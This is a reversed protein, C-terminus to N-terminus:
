SPDATCRLWGSPAVTIGLREELATDVVFRDSTALFERVATKPNAARSWPRDPYLEDPLDDIVTDLVVVYSGARVLPSYLRLEALVHEHTHNSDLVVLVPDRGESLQRVQAAIGPETSSGEILRYRHRLPHADLAARNHPRIEVDVGVALGDAGLLELMSAYFVLAGGHAVGTELILRPRITWILEQLAQLDQPYQIVPRGLWTFGYSYRRRVSAEIWERSLQGFSGEFSM